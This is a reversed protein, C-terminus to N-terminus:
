GTALASQLRTVESRRAIQDIRRRNGRKNEGKVSLFKSGKLKNKKKLLIQFFCYLRSPKKIAGAVTLKIIIM